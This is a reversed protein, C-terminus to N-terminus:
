QILQEIYDQVAGIGSDLFYAGIVAELTSSLLKPNQRGGQSVLYSSMRIMQGLNLSTALKALQSNCVLQKRRETLEGEQARPYRQYLLSTACFNLISDGLHELRENDQNVWQPSQFYSRHTLAQQLLLPNRFQPLTATKHDSNIEANM